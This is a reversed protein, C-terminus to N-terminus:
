GNKILGLMKFFEPFLILAIVISGLQDIQQQLKEIKKNSRKEKKNKM